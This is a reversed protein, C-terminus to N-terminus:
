DWQYTVTLQILPIPIDNIDNIKRVSAVRHIKVICPKSCHIYLSEM